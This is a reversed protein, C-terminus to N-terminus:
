EVELDAMIREYMAPQWCRLASIVEASELVKRRFVFRYATLLNERDTISEMVKWCAGVGEHPTSPKPIGLAEAVDDLYSSMAKITELRTDTLKQLQEVDAILTRCHGIVGAADSNACMPSRSAYNISDKIGQLDVAV